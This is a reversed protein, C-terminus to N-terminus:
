KSEIIVKTGLPIGSGVSDGQLVLQFVGFGGSRSVLSLLGAGKTAKGAITWKDSSGAVILGQISPRKLRAETSGVLVYDDKAGIVVADYGLATLLTDALVRVDLKAYEAKNMALGIGPGGQKGYLALKEGNLVVAGNADTIQFIAPIGGAINGKNLLATYAADRPSSCAFFSINRCIKHNFKKFLPQGSKVGGESFGDVLVISTPAVLYALEKQNISAVWERADPARSAVEAQVNKPLSMFTLISITCLKITANKKM